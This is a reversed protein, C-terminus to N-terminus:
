AIAISSVRPSLDTARVDARVTAGGDAAVLKYTTSTAGSIAACGAGATDCRKWQYAYASPTPTWTGNSVTLTSNVTATGTVAPLVTNLTASIPAEVYDSGSLRIATNTDGALAGVVGRQPFNKYVASIANAGSDAATTGSAEGLRWYAAPTDALVAIPYPTTPAAASATGAALVVGVAILCFAPVVRVGFLSTM